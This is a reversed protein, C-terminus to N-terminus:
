HSLLTLWYTFVKLLSCKLKSLIYYLIAVMLKFIVLDDGGGVFSIIICLRPEPGPQGGSCVGTIVPAARPHVRWEDLFLKQM